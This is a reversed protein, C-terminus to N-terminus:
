APTTRALGAAYFSVAKDQVHLGAVFQALAFREQITVDDAAAPEFLACFSQQAQQRTVPKRDRIMALPSGTELGALHDIVDDNSMCREGGQRSAALWVGTRGAAGGTRDVTPHM